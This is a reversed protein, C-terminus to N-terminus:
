YEQLVTCYSNYLQAMLEVKLTQGLFIEGLNPISCNKSKYCKCVSSPIPRVITTENIVVNNDMKLVKKLM